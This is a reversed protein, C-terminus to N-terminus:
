QIGLPAQLNTGAQAAAAPGYANMIRSLASDSELTAGALDKAAGAGQQLAAAAKQAQEDKARKARKANREAQPRLIDPDMGAIDSYKNVYKDGDFADLIDPQIQSASLIMAAVREMAPIQQAKQAEGMVSLFEIKLEMGDLEQPPVPMIGMRDALTFARDLVRRLYEEEVNVMVSGLQQLREERKARIEEATSRQAREDDTILRWLDAYLGQQVAWQLGRIDERVQQVAGHDPVHIARVEGQGGTIATYQGPLQSPIGLMEPGSLPPSSQKEVMQLKRRVMTQLQKLDPLVEFGPGTGYVDEPVTRSWRPTIAPFDRYGATRLFATKGDDSRAAEMYVARFEMGEWNWLGSKMGEFGTETDKRNPEIVHLIQHEVDWQGRRYQDRVQASVADIGFEGVMQAVSLVHKRYLTDVRGAGDVALWFSGAALPKWRVITEDDEEGLMGATGFAILDPFCAGSTVGYFGSRLLVWDLISDVEQLYSKVSPLDALRPDPTTLRKWRRAPSCIGTSMGAACTRLAFTGTPDLIKDSAERRIKETASFRVRWPLLYDGIDRYFKDWPARQSELKGLRGLYRQRPTQM